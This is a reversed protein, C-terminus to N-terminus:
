NIDGCEVRLLSKNGDISDFRIEQIVQDDFCSKGSGISCTKFSYSAENIGVLKYNMKADLNTFCTGVTNEPKDTCGSLIVMIFILLMRNM